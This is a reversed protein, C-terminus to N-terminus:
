LEFESFMLKHNSQQEQTKPCIKAISFYFSNTIKNKCFKAFIIDELQCKNPLKRYIKRVLCTITADPNFQWQQYTNGAAKKQINVVFGSIAEKSLTLEVRTDSVGLCLQPM